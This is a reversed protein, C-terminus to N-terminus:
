LGMTAISWSTGGEIAEPHRRHINDEVKAVNEEPIDIMVLIEGHSMAERFESLHTNPVRAWFFGNVFTAAMVVLMLISLSSPSTITLLLTVLAAFFVVLNIKWLWDGIVHIIDQRQRSTAQPLDELDIDGRAMTHIHTKHVGMLLAERVVQRAHGVDPLQFYLRRNM